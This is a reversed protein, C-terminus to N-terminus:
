ATQNDIGFRKENWTELYSVPFLVLRGLKLAKLEGSKVFTDLYRVSIGLMEAAQKRTANILPLGDSTTYTM